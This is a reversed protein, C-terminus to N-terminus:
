EPPQPLLIAQVQSTSTATLRSRVVASWGPHCLLVRIQSRFSNKLTTPQTLHSVGTIAASQSASAPPDGSILLKLGAQGVHCFRTETIGAGPSASAPPDGSTLLKFGAQGVHLFEMEVLFVFNAPRPPAHRYDWSSLLSLCSFQKFRPSPHQLSGFNSWQVGAQAVLTFSQKIRRYDSTYSISFIILPRACHCMGTIGASQSASTPVDVDLSQSWGPWCPSVEDRSFICFHAPCPPACRYDWSSQLSLCSSRKSGPPLPQPSGLDRWQVGAQLGLVKPPSTPPDGSTLFELGAQGVHLFGMEIPLSLCSFRKFRLTPPQLSGLEHWQMGAQAVLAFSKYDSNLIEPIFWTSSHLHLFFYKLLPMPRACHSVGTIEASQSASAPPDGSTLLELGAQGDHRFGMEILFVFILQAHHCVGTIGTVESASAPSDSSSLLHLNCHASITGSCELMPSLTHSWRRFYDDWSSPLSFCSSGKLGPTRPQLSSHHHWRMGAVLCSGTQSASAPSDSTGLLCLNHHALIMGNRELMYIIDPSLIPWMIFNCLKAVIKKLYTKTHKNFKIKKTLNLPERRYDWFKPLGPLLDSSTLLKLGAQGVYHFGM